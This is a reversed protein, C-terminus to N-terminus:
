NSQSDTKDVAQAFSMRGNLLSRALDLNVRFAGGFRSSKIVVYGKKAEGISITEISDDSHIIKLSVKSTELKGNTLYTSDFIAEYSTWLSSVASGEVPDGNAFQWANDVRKLEFDSYKIAKLDDSSASPAKFDVMKSLKPFFNNHNSASLSYAVKQGEMQIIKGSQIPFEGLDHFKYIKDGAKAIVEKGTRAPLDKILYDQANLSKFQSTLNKLASSNVKPLPAAGKLNWTDGKKLLQYSWDVDKVTIQSINDSIKIDDLGFLDNNKAFIDELRFSSIKYVEKPKSTDLIYWDDGVKNAQVEYIANGGNNVKLTYKNKGFSKAVDSKVPESVKIEDLDDLFDKIKTTDLAKPPIDGSVSWKIVDKPPKSGDTSQQIQSVTKDLTFAKHPYSLEISSIDSKKATVINEIIWNNATMNANVPKPTLYVGEDENMHFYQGAPPAGMNFPMAPNPQPAKGEKNKGLELNLLSKDGAKLVLQTPNSSQDLGFKKDHTNSRTIRSDLKLDRIALLLERLKQFNLPFDLNDSTTARWIEGNKKFSIKQKGKSLEVETVNNLDLSKFPTTNELTSKGRKDATPKLGIYAFVACIIVLLILGKSKM